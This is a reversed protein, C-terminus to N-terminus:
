VKVFVMKMKGVKAVQNPLIKCESRYSGSDYFSLQPLSENWEGDDKLLKAIITRGGGYGVDRGEGSACLRENIVVWKAKKLDIKAKINVKRRVERSWGGPKREIRSEAIFDSVTDVKLREKIVTVVGDENTEWPHYLIVGKVLKKIRFVDGVELPEDKKRITKAM